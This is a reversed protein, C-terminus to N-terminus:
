FLSRMFLKIKKTLSLKLYQKKQIHKKSFSSIFENINKSPFFSLEKWLTKYLPHFDAFNKYNDSDIEKWKDFFESTDFDNKHGWNNIKESIEDENRAWSQHILYYDLPLIRGINTNRAYAYKPTNTILMCKEEFPIIVFYGENNQKFLTVFNVQFNIPTKAPKRLLYKNKRLFQTLMRFDYAYEDGDMQIHWGGAGMKEAMMNRQRTELDMPQMGDIYFADKYLVIKNETDLKKIDIFVNEPIHIENGAWTKHNADYSIVIHDAYEYIHELSTFIYSYDYSLLYGVKIVSKKNSM